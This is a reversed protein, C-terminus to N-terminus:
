FVKRGSAQGNNVGDSGGHVRGFQMRMQQWDLSEIRYNNFLRRVSMSTESRQPTCSTPSRGPWGAKDAKLRVRM